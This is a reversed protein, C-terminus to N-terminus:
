RAAEGMYRTELKERRGLLSSARMAPYNSGLTAMSPWGMDWSSAIRTSQISPPQVPCPFASLPPPGWCPQPSTTLSNPPKRFDDVFRYSVERLSQCVEFGQFLSLISQMRANLCAAKQGGGCKCCAENSSLGDVLTSDCSTASEYCNAGAATTWGPTDVCAGCTSIGGTALTSTYGGACSLCANGNIAACGPLVILSRCCSQAHDLSPCEFGLGACDLSSEPCCFVQGQWTAWGVMFIPYTSAPCSSWKSSSGNAASQVM